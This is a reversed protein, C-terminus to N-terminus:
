LIITQLGLEKFAVIKGALLVGRTKGRVLGERRESERRELSLFLSIKVFSIDGSFSSHRPIAKPQWVQPFWTVWDSRYGM